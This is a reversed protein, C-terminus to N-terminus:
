KALAGDSCGPNLSTILKFVCRKRNRGAASSLSIESCYFFFVDTLEDLLVYFM